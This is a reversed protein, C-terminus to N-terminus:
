TAQQKSSGNKSGVSLRVGPTFSKWFCATCTQRAAYKRNAHIQHVIVPTHNGEGSSGQKSQKDGCALCRESKWVRVDAEERARLTM